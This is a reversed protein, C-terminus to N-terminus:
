DRKTRMPHFGDTELATKARGYTANDSYPGVLVRTLSGTVRTLSVPFGEGRLTQRMAEAVEPKGAFVQWYSGPPLESSSPADTTPPAVAPKEV